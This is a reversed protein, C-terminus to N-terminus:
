RSSERQGSGGIITAPLIISFTTGIGVTSNVEISGAHAQIVKYVEALGFGNGEAKTTFFPSFIKEIHEPRIGTGTDKVTIIAHPGAKELGVTIVGGNPMAQISNVILNLLASKILQSDVPANLTSENTELKLTIKSDLTDDVAVHHLLENILSVLNISEFHTKVPRSYNLINTVLRNLNDTADVIYGAMQRQESGEPLDRCLLSAFGKIGGLPNRIEHAVMAAMEGLEKLRDNRNALNQLKRLATVDRILIILGQTLELIPSREEVAVENDTNMVFTTNTELEHKVGDPTTFTAITLPHSERNSLAERLSFGFIDDPFNEWIPNFLVDEVEVGLITQAAQNYTTIMGNLDIFIIGQSLNSLISNLYHSVADLDLVKDKLLKNSEELEINVAMFQEKMAAYANELRSTEKSFLEFAKSLSELKEESTQGVTIEHAADKLSQLTAKAM